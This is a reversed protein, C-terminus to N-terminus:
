KHHQRSGSFAIMLNRIDDITKAYVSAATTLTDGNRAVEEKLATHNSEVKQALLKFATSLSDTVDNRAESVRRMDNIAVTADTLAKNLVDRETLRYGYVKQNHMYLARIVSAMVVIALLLVFIIAGAVGNEKLANVVFEPLGLGM